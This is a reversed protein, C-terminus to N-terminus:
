PLSCHEDTAPKFIHLQHKARTCAVYFLRTREHQQQQAAQHALYQYHPDPESQTRPNHLPALLFYSHETQTPNPHPAELWRLLPAADTQVNKELSALIVHDFELGKAKHITLLHIRANPPADTLTQTELHQILDSVSAQANYPQAPHQAALWHRLSSFYQDIAQQDLTDPYCLEGGLAQWALHISSASQLHQTDSRATSLIPAVRALRARGANSVAWQAAPKDILLSLWAPLTHNEGQSQTVLAQLDALSLGCWPARLVALWASHDTPDLLARTLSLADQVCPQDLIPLIAEAHVALNAHKLARYLALAHRRARFLVAISTNPSDGHLNQILGLLQRAIVTDDEAALTYEAITHGFSPRQTTANCYPVAGSRIDVTQPFQRPFQENFWQVLHGAARFNETLTVATLPLDGFGQQQCRLFLGVDAQRFRYISQMPDGVLFLTRGDGVQWGRTLALLLRYHLQSTDQFEDVLLHQLQQDWRLALPTPSTESGLADTAALSIETYDVCGATRFVWHLYAVLVPLVELLHALTTWTQASFEAPPALALAALTETLAPHQAHTALWQQMQSKQVRREQAADNDKTASPAPFGQRKDVTKRLTLTSTLLWRCLAMLAPYHEPTAPPLQQFHWHQVLTHDPSVDALQRAAYHACQCLTAHDTHESLMVYAAQCLETQLREFQTELYIKLAEPNSKQHCYPLWQERHQLMHVFLREITYPQTDLHQLVYALSASWPHSADLDQWLQLVAQQYLPTPNETVPPAGGLGSQKPMQRTLQACLADLTMINLREPHQSLQWGLTQDQVLAAKALARTDSHLHNASVHPYAPDVAQLAALIRAKMEAAAKRTFTIALIANPRASQSLLKLMRQTLLTTKGSGAPAQVIVSQRLDLAQKRALSDAPECDTLPPPPTLTKLALQPMSVADPCQKALTHDIRCLPRAPCSPCLKSPQAPDVAAYGAKFQAAATKLTSQWRQLQTSWDAEAEPIRKLPFCYLGPDTDAQGSVGQSRIGQRQLIQYSMHQCNLIQTAYLPMQLDLPRAGFWHKIQVNGTKYDILHRGSNTEDIRDVRCTINLGCLQTYLTQELAVIHFPQRQLEAQLHLALLEELRQQELLWTVSSLTHPIHAQYDQISAQAVQKILAARAQQTCQLITTQSSLARGLRHLVDHVLQGRQAPSLQNSPVPLPELYLRHAAFARFPCRMQESLIRSSVSKDSTAELPPGYPEPDTPNPLPPPMISGKPEPPTLVSLTHDLRMPPICPWPPTVAQGPQATHGPQSVVLTGVQRLGQWTLQTTIAHGTPASSPAPLLWASDLAINLTPDLTFCGIPMPSSLPIDALAALLIPRLAAYSIPQKSQMLPHHRLRTLVADLTHALGASPAKASPYAPLCAAAQWVAHLHAPWASAQTPVPDMALQMLKLWTNDPNPKGHTRPQVQRLLRALASKPVDLLATATLGHALALRWSQQQAANPLQPARLLQTLLGIPLRAQMLDAVRLAYAREAKEQRQRKLAKVLTPTGHSVAAQYLPDSLDSAPLLANPSQAHQLLAIRAKPKHKFQTVAWQCAQLVAADPETYRCIQPLVSPQTLGLATPQIRWHHHLQQLCTTALDHPQQNFGLTAYHKPPALCFTHPTQIFAQMLTAEDVANLNRFYVKLETHWRRVDAQLAPSLDQTIQQTDLYAQTALADTFLIDTLEPAQRVTYRWWQLQEAASIYCHQDAESWMAWLWDTLTLIFCPYQAPWLQTQAALWASYKSHSTLILTYNQHPSDHLNKLAQPQTYVGHKTNSPDAGPYGPTQSPDYSQNETNENM